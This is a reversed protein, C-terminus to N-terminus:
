GTGDNARRRYRRMGTRRQRPRYYQLRWRRRANPYQAANAPSAVLNMAPALMKPCGAALFAALVANDAFGAAAKAIFDASAPAVLFLTSQRAIHIHDMGDDAFVDGGIVAAGSLARFTAAGVFSHAATDDIGASAGGRLQVACIRRKTAPSVAPSALPSPQNHAPKQRRKACLPTQNKPLRLIFACAFAAGNRATKCHRLRPNTANPKARNARSNISRLCLSNAM